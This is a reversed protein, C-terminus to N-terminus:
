NPEDADIMDETLRLLWGPLDDVLHHVHDGDSGETAWDGHGPVLVTTMGLAAAPELNKAIDEIMVAREPDIAHTRLLGRYAELRPKPVFDAAVIDYVGDFHPAVGLREMIREAHALSGNTFIIKRGPLRGLAEEWRGDHPIVTVDIAHVYDLFPIPDLDHEVMLGRLTTGHSRFLRKQVARAEELGTDFFRAIFQGMRQSVQPFMGCDAPYLTNDLDFVWVEVERPDIAATTPM